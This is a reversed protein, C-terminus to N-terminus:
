GLLLGVVILLLGLVALLVAAAIRDIRTTRAEESPRGGLVAIRVGAILVVLVGIATVVAGGTGVEGLSM